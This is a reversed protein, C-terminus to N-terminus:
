KVVSADTTVVFRHDIEYRRALHDLGTELIGTLPNKAARIRREVAILLLFAVILLLNAAVYARWAGAVWSFGLFAYGFMGPTFAMVPLRNLLKLGDAYVERDRRIFRAIAAATRRVIAYPVVVFASTIVFWEELRESASLYVHYAGDDDRGPMKTWRWNWALFIAFVVVAPLVVAGLSQARTISVFATAVAAVSLGFQLGVILRLHWSREFDYTVPSNLNKWDEITIDRAMILSKAVHSRDGAPLSRLAFLLAAGRSNRGILEQAGTPAVSQDWLDPGSRQHIAVLGAWEQGSLEVRAWVCIARLLRPDLERLDMFHGTLHRGLIAVIRGAVYAVQSSEEATSFPVWVWPWAERATRKERFDFAEIAERTSADDFHSGIVYAADPDDFLDIRDLLVSMALPTRIQGLLPIAGPIRLVDRIPQVAVDGMRVLLHEVATGREVMRALFEAARPLNTLSLAAAAAMRVESSPGNGAADCLFSFMAAGRTRADSAVAAFAEQVREHIATRDLFSTQFEQVITDALAPDIQQVDGLCELAALPDFAHIERIFRTSDHELGCWLKVVERWGDPDARFEGILRDPEGALEVATFYEQLTLHAFQFRAGNDIAMLLGSRAVIEERIPDADADGLTLEPLVKRLERLLVEYAITRRDQSDDNAAHNYLALHQLVLQKQQQNYENQEEKARLLFDTANRYFAARSRPLVFEKECYLLAVITLLLPNRALRMIAPRDRLTQLLQEVSKGAPFRAQWPRLFAIIQQDTLEAVELSDSLYTDFEGHYVPGRCTIVFRCERYTDMLENIGQAVEYRRAPAVEDFGDFLLMLYGDRLSSAVFGGARPFDRKQLVEVVKAIVDVPGDSFRSLEILVPVPRDELALRNEGYALALSRLLLSKGSGPTGLVLARTPRMLISRIDLERKLNDRVKLPVYIDRMELELGPRFAVPFRGYKKRLAARYRRLAFGRLFRFGALREYGIAGIKSVTKTGFSKLADHFIWGVLLVLAVLWGDRPQLRSWISREGAGRGYAAEYLLTVDRITLGAAKADDGFLLALSEPTDATAGARGHQAGREEIQRVLTSRDVAAGFFFICVIAIALRRVIM